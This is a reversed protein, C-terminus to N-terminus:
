LQVAPSTLVTQLCAPHPQICRLLHLTIVFAYTGLLAYHVTDYNYTIISLM